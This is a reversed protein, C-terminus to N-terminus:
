APPSALMDLTLPERAQIDRARTAGPCRAVRPTCDREPVCCPWTRPVSPRVRRSTVRMVIISRRSYTAEWQECAAIGKEGDGMADEVRRTGLVLQVCNHQIWLFGITLGDLDHDLTFHKEIVRAGLAVAALAPENTVCHDSLGITLAPFMSRYTSVVNINM